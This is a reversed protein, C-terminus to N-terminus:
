RKFVYQWCNNVEEKLDTRFNRGFFDILETRDQECNFDRPRCALDCSDLFIYDANQISEMMEKKREKSFYPYYMLNDIRLDSRAAIIPNSIWVKEHKIQMLYQELGNYQNDDQFRYLNYIHYGSFAIMCTIIIILFLNKQTFFRVKLIEDISYAILMFMFPFIILLFRMEKQSIINFFLFPVMFSSYISLKTGIREKDKFIFFVPLFALFYFLNEKYLNKFYFDIGHFNPWGSNKSIDLQELFPFLPNNYLYTNLILYPVLVASFGLFIRTTNKSNIKKMLLLIAIFAIMPLIQLFRTMFAMGFFIGCLFHEHEMFYYIAALAFFTSTIESLMMGSFYFFTSSFALLISSIVAVRKSFIKECILYTLLICGASIIIELIRGFFVVDLKAKWLFGLVLPWVLPRSPELLGSQGFSHIYKGMGIYVAPDWWLNNYFGITLFKLIFFSSIIAIIEKHKKFM